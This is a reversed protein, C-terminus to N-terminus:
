TEVCKLIFLIRLSRPLYFVIFIFKFYSKFSICFAEQYGWLVCYFYIHNKFLNLHRLNNSLSRCICYFYLIFVNYNIEWHNDLHNNWDM